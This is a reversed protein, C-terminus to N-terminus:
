GALVEIEVPVEFLKQRGRVPFPKVPRPNALLWHWCGPEAWKSPHNQVCDVLDVVGIICGLALEEREPWHPWSERPLNSIGRYVNHATWYEGWTFKMAAHILLPGRYNTYWTRNEVDKPGGPAPGHIILWAWPQWVSLCRM